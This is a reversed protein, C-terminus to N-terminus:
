LVQIPCLPVWVMCQEFLPDRLTVSAIIESEQVPVGTIMTAIEINRDYRSGNVGLGRCAQEICSCLSVNLKRQIPTVLHRKSGHAIPFRM